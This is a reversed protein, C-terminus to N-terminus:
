LFFTNFLYIEEFEVIKGYTKYTEQMIEKVILLTKKSYKLSLIHTKQYLKISIRANRLKKM